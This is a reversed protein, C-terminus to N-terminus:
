KVTGSADLRKPFYVDHYNPLNSLRDNVRLMRCHAVTSGNHQFEIQRVTDNIRASAITRDASSLARYDSRNREGADPDDFALIYQLEVLEIGQGRLM